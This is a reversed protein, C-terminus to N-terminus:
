PTKEMQFNNAAAYKRQADRLDKIVQDKKAVSEKIKDLEAVRDEQTKANGFSQYSVYFGRLYEFYRIIAAKFEEAGKADPLPTKKIDEIKSEVIKEMRQGAAAVSDFQQAAVFKAVDGETKQIDPMMSNEKDVFDQNYQFAGKSKCSALGIVAVFLLLMIKRM